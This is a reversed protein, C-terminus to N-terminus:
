TWNITESYLAEFDRRCNGPNRDNAHMTNRKRPWVAFVIIEGGIVQLRRGPKAPNLGEGGTETIASPATVIM